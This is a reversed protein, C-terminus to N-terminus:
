GRHSRHSRKHNKWTEYQQTRWINKIEVYESLARGQRTYKRKVRCILHGPRVVFYLWREFSALVEDAIRRQIKFANCHAMLGFYSNLTMALNIAGNETFAAEKMACKCARITRNSLYIRDGKVVRGCSLMGRHAPQISVKRPHLSLGLKELERELVSEAEHAKDVSDAMIDYDDVFHEERIGHIKVLEADVRSLYIGAVVQSPYKGIPLGFGPRSHFLSKHDPIYRWARAPSKLVCGDLPDSLLTTKLLALKKARDPYPYYEESLSEVIEYARQRNINIFFGSVDRHMRVCPRAGNRSIFRVDERIRESMGHASHGIRNGHSIDGNAAHVGDAVANFLPAIYHHVICDLHHPAFAERFVPYSLIFASMPRPHYRGENVETALAFLEVLHYHVRAADFSHHKNKYAGAEAELWRDSDEIFESAPIVRYRNYTNNYARNGNSPNVYWANNASQRGAVAEDEAKTTAQTRVCAPLGKKFSLESM